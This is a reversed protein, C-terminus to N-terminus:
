HFQCEYFKARLTPIFKWNLVTCRYPSLGERCVKQRFSRVTVLLLFYMKVNLYEDSSVPYVNKVVSCKRSVDDIQCLSLVAVRMECAVSRLIKSRKTSKWSKMFFFCIVSKFILTHKLMVPLTLNFLLSLRCRRQFSLFWCNRKNLPGTICTVLAYLLVVPLCVTCSRQCIKCM